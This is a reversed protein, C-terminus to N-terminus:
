EIIKTMKWIFTEWTDALSVSCLADGLRECIAQMIHCFGSKGKLINLNSQYSLLERTTYAHVLHLFMGMVCDVCIDTKDPCTAYHHLVVTKMDYTPVGQFRESLYKMIQYCRRHKDSMTQTIANIEARCWSKRWSYVDSCVDCRKPVIFFNHEDGAGSSTPNLFEQAPLFDVYIPLSSIPQAEHLLLMDPAQLTRKKSTWKFILSCKNPGQSGQDVKKETNVRLAGTPMKVTCGDCEHKHEVASPQFSIKSFGVTDKDCQLSLCDCSSTLCHNIETLFLDCIVHKNLLKKASFDDWKNYYQRMRELEVLPKVTTICGQCDNTPIQDECQNNITNKLIALFDFELYQNRNHFKWISTKEVASGSPVIRAIDFIGRSNVRTRIRDLMEDVANQIDKIERNTFDVPAKSTIHQFFEELKKRRESDSTQCKVKSRVEAMEATIILRKISIVNFGRKANAHFSPLSLHKTQM